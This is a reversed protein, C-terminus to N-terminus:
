GDNEKSNNEGIRELERVAMEVEEEVPLTGDIFILPCLLKKQWLDHKLKSRVSLDGDDYQKAWDIFDEHVRYMDGGERIRDGFERYERERLRQIRVETPTNMRIALTFLPILEDGWGGLAGSLVVGEAEEIDKKMLRLREPIERKVTFPVDTNEWYYFDTDMFRLNLREALAKGLTSTGSGSAGFIHIVQKM